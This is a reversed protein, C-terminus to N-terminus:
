NSSKFVTTPTVGLRDCIDDNQVRDRRTHACIWCLMCMKAVNVLQVHQRKKTPWCEVGYTMTPRVAMRYFKDKLKHPVTKDYLIGSTQHWKMWGAKIRHRVDEDIDGDRQLM